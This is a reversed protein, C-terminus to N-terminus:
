INAIDDSISYGHWVANVALKDDHPVFYGEDIIFYTKGEMWENVMKAREARDLWPGKDDFVDIVQDVIGSARALEYNINM